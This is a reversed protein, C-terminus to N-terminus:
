RKRRINSKRTKGIIEGGLQKYQEDDLEEKATSWFINEENFNLIDEIDKENKLQNFHDVFNSVSHFFITSKLDQNFRHFSSMRHKFMNEVKVNCVECLKKGTNKVDQKPKHYAIIHKKMRHPESNLHTKWEKSKLSYGCLKCKINGKTEEDEAPNDYEPISIKQNM